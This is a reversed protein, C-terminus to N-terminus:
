TMITAAECVHGDFIRRHLALLLNITNAYNNGSLVPTFEIMRRWQAAGTRCTIRIHVEYLKVIVFFSSHFSFTFNMSKPNPDSREEEKRSTRRLKEIYALSKIQFNFQLLSTHIIAGSRHFHFFFFDLSFISM